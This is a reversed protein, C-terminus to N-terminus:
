SRSGSECWQRSRSWCRARGMTLMVSSACIMVTLGSSARNRVFPEFIHRLSPMQSHSAVWFRASKGSSAFFSSLIISHHSSSTIGGSSISCTHRNLASASSCRCSSREATFDGPCYVSPTTSDGRTSASNRTTGGASYRASAIVSFCSFASLIHIIFSVPHLSTSAAIIM